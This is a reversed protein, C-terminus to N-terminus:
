SVFEWSVFDPHFVSTIYKNFIQRSSHQNLFDWLKLLSFTSTNSGMISCCVDRKESITGRVEEGEGLPLKEFLTNFHITNM